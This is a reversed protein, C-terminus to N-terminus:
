GNGEPPAAHVLEGQKVHRLKKAQERTPRRPRSEPLPKVKVPQGTKVSEEIAKIVLVDALGEWGDPEPHVNDLVCDSFYQTEGGFQDTLKYTTEKPSQDGVTLRHVHEEVYSYAKDVELSGKTGAVTLKAVPNTGYSVVFQALRDGPFRLTVMVMEEIEAFRAEGAKRAAYAFAETPEARFLQRVANIPYPGMDPLPGAWLEGETRSNEESVQQCFTSTFLRAEGITGDNTAEIADVTGEEFHLRYAIMLKAGTKECAAIMARCDEETPAMPKECLVHIGAELAKVVPDRHMSNPLALYVADIQGSRLLADYGEYNTVHPADYKKALERAKEPDGTVLATLVSNGTHAVGPLFDEQTIWGAGVAAYRVKRGDPRANSFPHLLSM